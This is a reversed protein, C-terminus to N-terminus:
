RVLVVKRVQAASGGAELRMLYVGAPLRQTSEGLGDWSTQHVGAPLTGRWVTRVLRGEVDYIRLSGGAARPLEFAIVTRASFLNPSVSRIGLSPAQPICILAVAGIWDGCASRAPTCPSFESVRYSGEATPANTCPTPGCFLPDRFSDPGLGEITGGGGVGSSEVLCYEFAATGGSDVQVNGFGADSCNGWVVCREAWLHGGNTVLVGGGGRSGGDCGAVTTNRMTVSSGSCLLGSERNGTITCGVIEVQSHSCCVGGGFGTVGAMFRCNTIQADGGYINVGAGSGTTANRTFTCNIIRPAGDAVAIGGGRGPFEYAGYSGARNGQFLCSEITPSAKDCAIGGGFVGVNNRFICHRITPSSGYCYVAAAGLADRITIGELVTASSQGRSFDLAGCDGQASIVCRSPDLSQSCFVINADPFILCWWILFEGDGLIVSDGEVAVDLAARITPLDGSGDPKLLYTKAGADFGFHPLLVSVSLALAVQGLARVPRWGGPM